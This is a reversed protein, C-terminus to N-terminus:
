RSKSLNNLKLVQGPKVQVAQKWRTRKDIQAHLVYDGTPVNKLEFAGNPSTTTYYPSDVVVITARMHEHIECRLNVLGAKPFNVSPVESDGKRYRGLDFRRTRSLSFVNHHDVDDNPFFVKTGVPVTILSKSFQYNTQRVIVDPVREPAKLGKAELWVAAVTAPAPSVKGSIKGTYKEIAIRQQGDNMFPVRGKIAGSQAAAGCCWLVLASCVLPLTKM